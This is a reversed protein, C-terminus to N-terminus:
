ESVNKAERWWKFSQIWSDPELSDAWIYIASCGKKYKITPVFWIIQQGGFIGWITELEERPRSWRREVKSKWINTLKLNMAYKRYSITLSMGCCVSHKHKHGEWIWINFDLGRFTITNSTPPSRQSTILDHPHLGWSQSQHGSLLSGLCSGGRGVQSSM